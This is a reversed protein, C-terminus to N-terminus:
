GNVPPTPVAPTVPKVPDSPTWDVHSSDDKFKFYAHELAVIIGWASILLGGIDFVDQVLASANSPTAYGHAVIFGIAITGLWKLTLETESSMIILYLIASKM